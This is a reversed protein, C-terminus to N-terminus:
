KGTSDSGGARDPHKDLICRGCNPCFKLPTKGTCNLIADREVFAGCESCRFLEIGKDYCGFALIMEMM